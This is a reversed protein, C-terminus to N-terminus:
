NDSKLRKKKMNIKIDEPLKDYEEDTLEKGEYVPITVAGDSTFQLKFSLKEVQKKIRGM